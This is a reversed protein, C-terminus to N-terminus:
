DSKSMEHNVCTTHDDSVCVCFFLRFKTYPGSNSIQLGFLSHIIFVYSKALAYSCVFNWIVSSSFIPKVKDGGSVFIPDKNFDRSYTVSDERM